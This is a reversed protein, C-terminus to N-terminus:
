VTIVHSLLRENYNLNLPKFQNIIRKMSWGRCRHIAYFLCFQGCIQTGYQQLRKENYMYHQGNTLLVRKFQTYYYDPKHGMSDFFEAPGRLPFYFAVWHRGRQLSKDTNVIYVKPRWKISRPLKDAPVVGGFQKVRRMRYTLQASNM